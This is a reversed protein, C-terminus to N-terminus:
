RATSSRRRAPRPRRATDGSTPRADEDQRDPRGGHEGGEGTPHHGRAAPGPVLQLQGQVRDVQGLVAGAGQLHRQRAAQPRPQGPAAFGSAHGAREDVVVQGLPRPPQDTRRAGHHRAGPVPGQHPRGPAAPRGLAVRHRGVAVRPPSGARRGAPGAPGRGRLRRGPPLAGRAFQVDRDTRRDAVGDVGTPGPPAREDLVDLGRASLVHSFVSSDVGLGNPVPVQPLFGVTGTTQVEGTVKLHRPTEGLLFALLSSKGAGNAGVLGVKDRPGIVFTADRLLTRAGLEITIDRGTLM